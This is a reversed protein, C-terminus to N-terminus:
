HFLFLNKKKLVRQEHVQIASKAIFLRTLFYVLCIANLKVIMRSTFNMVDSNLNSAVVEWLIYKVGAIKAIIGGILDSHTLVLM